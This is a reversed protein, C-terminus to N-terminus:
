FTTISHPKAPLTARSGSARAPSIRRFTSTSTAEPVEDTSSVLFAARAIGTTNTAATSGTAIPSTLLRARGPPVSVPM